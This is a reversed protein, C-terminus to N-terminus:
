LAEIDKVKFIPFFNGAINTPRIKKIEAINFNNETKAKSAEKYSIENKGQCSTGNKERKIIQASSKKPAISM